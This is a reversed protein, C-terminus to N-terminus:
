NGKVKGTPIKVGPLNEGNNDINALFIEKFDDHCKCINGIIDFMAGLYKSDEKCLIILKTSHEGLVGTNAIDVLWEVLRDRRMKNYEEKSMKSM